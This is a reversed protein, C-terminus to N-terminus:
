KDMEDIYKAVQKGAQRGFIVAEAISNGGIRNDGHLGGAVEGAAYLGGVKDGTENLAETLKNIRIGGMTYHIAPKIHIAYYPPLALRRAMATERGFDVDIGTLQSDNWKAVTASLKEIDLHAKKALDTLNEATMVLGVADYFNIAPFADRIGQDFVLTAGDEQLNDIAATVKDRTTMENVFRQGAQNVLIAGEGRVGEGILYVHNTDQQVTPHVQIKHMDVLTAGAAVVLKMGDGTAGPHNTTKLPLLEPAYKKLMTKNQSFGGTAILVAKTAIIREGIERNDIKLGIVRGDQKMIKIATTESFLPIKKTVLQKQLGKVLYSGVASKNDPRHARKQSMGGTATLDTLHIDHNELWHLASESHTVFYSLLEKDNTKGGGQWTDEYFSDQDDIVHNALQVLTETANMGTSARNSNGGLANLKEFIAVHLGLEQAQIAATMGAAGSGVVILDYNEKLDNISTVPFVFKAM